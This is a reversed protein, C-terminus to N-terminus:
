EKEEEEIVEEKVEILNIKKKPNLGLRKMKEATILANGSGESLKKMAENYCSKSKDLAKGVSDMDIKFSALKDYLINGYKVIEETNKNQGDVKWLYSVMKLIPFLSSTTVIAVHNKQAEEYLTHNKDCNLAEIYAPEPVYM